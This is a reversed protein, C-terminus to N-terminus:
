ARGRKAPPHYGKDRARAVWKAAASRTVHFRGAVDETPHTTRSERYADAVARFHDDDYLPRRGAKRRREFLTVDRRMKATRSTSGASQIKRGAVAAKAAQEMLKALPIQRPLSAPVRRFGAGGAVPVPKRARAHRPDEEEFGRLDIGVCTVQDDTIAWHYTVTWAVGSEKAWLAQTTGRYEDAM